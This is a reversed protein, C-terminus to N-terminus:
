LMKLLLITWMTYNTVGEDLTYNCEGVENITINLLIDSYDFYTGNAPDNLTIDPPTTRQGKYELLLVAPDLDSVSLTTVNTIM